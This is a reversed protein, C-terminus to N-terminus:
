LTCRSTENTTIGALRRTYSRAISSPIKCTNTFAPALTSDDFQPGHKPLWM